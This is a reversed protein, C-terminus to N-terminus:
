PGEMLWGRSWVSYYGCSDDVCSRVYYYYTVGPAASADDLFTGVRNGLLTKTGGVSESRYIRYSTAFSLAEWSVRVKDVYTGKSASVEPPPWKRWGVDGLSYGGCNGDKCARVFYYYKVGPQASTDSMVTATRNNGILTKVGELSEARYIRYTSAYSVPNWNVRVYSAYIGDQADVGTPAELKRWGSEYVSYYSYSEGKHARIYYYYTKGPQASDDNYGTVSTSGVLSKVGDVTETRYVNYYETGPVESWTVRVYSAYTGDTASVGVPTELRRWGDAGLSYESCVSGDCAKIFYYYTLGSAASTDNYGLSRTTDLLSKAGELTDARYVEYTGAVSVEDWTVRVYTAYTGQTAVINGPAVPRFHGTVSHDGDM